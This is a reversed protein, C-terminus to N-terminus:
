KEYPHQKVKSAKIEHIAMELLEIGAKSYATKQDDGAKQHKILRKNEGSVVYHYRGYNDLYLEKLSKEGKIIEAYEKSLLNRGAMKRPFRHEKTLESLKGTSRFKELAEKSIGGDYLEDGSPMYWIGAGVLTELLAKQGEEIGEENYIPALAIIVKEMIRAKSELQKQNM